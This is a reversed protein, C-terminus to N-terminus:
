MLFLTAFLFYIGATFRHFFLPHNHIWRSAKAAVLVYGFHILAMLLCFSIAMMFSQLQANGTPNLFQPLVTFFFMLAHPNTLQLMIGEIFVRRRSTQIKPSSQVSSVTRRLCSFGLYVMYAAGAYKLVHAAQQSTSLLLGISTASIMSVIFVGSVLGSVGISAIKVGYNLSNSISKLVGPGPSIIVGAAMILFMFYLHMINM